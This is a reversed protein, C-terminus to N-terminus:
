GIKEFHNARRIQRKAGKARKGKQGKGRKGFPFPCFPLLAFPCFPLIAFPCFPLLAFLAFLAFACISHGFWKPSLEFHLSTSCVACFVRGGHGRGSGLWESFFSDFFIDVWFLSLILQGRQLLVKDASERTVWIAITWPCPAACSHASHLCLNAVLSLNVFCIFLCRSCIVFSM